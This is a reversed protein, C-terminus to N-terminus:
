KAKVGGRLQFRFARHERLSIRQGGNWAAASVSRSNTCCGATENMHHACTCLCQCLPDFLSLLSKRCIRL